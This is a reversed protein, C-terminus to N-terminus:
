GGSKKGPVEIIEKETIIYDLRIDHPEMTIKAVEQLAFGLGIKPCEVRALFRDYYGGGFGVRGGNRDFAVLPVIVFDLEHMAIIRKENYVPELLGYRSPKLEELSAIALCHLEGQKESCRPVAITKGQTIAKKILEHTDVERKEPVSVYSHICEAADWLNGTSYFRKRIEASM